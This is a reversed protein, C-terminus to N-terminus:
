QGDAQIAKAAEEKRDWKASESETFDALDLDILGESGKQLWGSNSRGIGSRGEM